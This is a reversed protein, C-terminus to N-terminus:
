PPPEDDGALTRARAQMGQILYSLLLCLGDHAVGFERVPDDIRRWEALLEARDDNYLLSIDIDRASREELFDFLTGDEIRRRIETASIHAYRGSDLAHTVNFAIEHM